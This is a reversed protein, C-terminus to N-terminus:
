ENFGLDFEFDKASVGAKESIKEVKDKVMTGVFTIAAISLLMAFTSVIVYEITASGSRSDKPRTKGDLKLPATLILNEVRRM